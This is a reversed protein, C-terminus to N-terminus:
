SSHLCPSPSPSPSFASRRPTHSTSYVNHSPRLWLWGTLSRPLPTPVAQQQHSATHQVSRASELYEEVTRTRLQMATLDVEARFERFGDDMSRTPRRAKVAATGSQGRPTSRWRAPAFTRARATPSTITPSLVLPPAHPVMRVCVNTFDVTRARARGAAGAGVWFDRRWQSGTCGDGM